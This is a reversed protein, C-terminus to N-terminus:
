IRVAKLLPLSDSTRLLRVQPKFSVLILAGGQGRVVSAGIGAVSDASANTAYTQGAASVRYAMPRAELRAEPSKFFRCSGIFGWPAYARSNCRGGTTM